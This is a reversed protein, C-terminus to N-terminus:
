KAVGMKTLRCLACFLRGILFGALWGLMMGLYPRHVLNVVWATAISAVLCTVLSSLLVSSLSYHGMALLLCLIGFWAILGLGAGVALAQWVPVSHTPVPALALGFVTGTFSGALAGTIACIGSYSLWRAFGSLM